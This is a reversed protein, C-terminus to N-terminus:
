EYKKNTKKPEVRSSTSLKDKTEVLPKAKVFQKTPPQNYSM